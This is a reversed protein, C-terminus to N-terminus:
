AVAKLTGFTAPVPVPARAVFKEVKARALLEDRLTLFKGLADRMKGIYPEDRQTRILVPEFAPHWIYLDWEVCESVALSGQVQPKYDDGPGDAWISVFNDDLPCKIEVGRRTGSVIGDPSCGIRGCDTTVFGVRDVTVKQTREYEEMALPEFARGRAMAWPTGPAREVARGLLTEAVLEHAYKAHAKALDGKVPTVIRHFESATPIGVRAAHWEPSRQTVTLIKM